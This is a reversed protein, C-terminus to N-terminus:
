FNSVVVSFAEQIKELTSFDAEGIRQLFTKNTFEKSVFYTFRKFTSWDKKTGLYNTYVLSFRFNGGTDYFIFIGADSVRDKLIKKAKEYQVKKGSRESLSNECSFACVILEETEDFKIEGLKIGGKFSDDNYEDLLERRPAFRSSRERFFLTIGEISFDKILQKLTSNTM